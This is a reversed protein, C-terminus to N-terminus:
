SITDPRSARPVPMCPREQRCRKPKSDLRGKSLLSFIFEEISKTRLDLQPRPIGTSTAGPMVAHTPGLFSTRATTLKVAADLKAEALETAPPPKERPLGRGRPWDKGAM